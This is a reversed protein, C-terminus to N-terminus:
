WAIESAQVEPARIWDLVAHFQSKQIAKTSEIQFQAKLFARLDAESRAHTKLAAFLQKRAAQDIAGDGYPVAAVTAHRLEAAEAADDERDTRPQYTVAATRRAATPPQYRDQNPSRADIGLEGVLPPSDIHRWQSDEHGHRDLVKVFVGQQLRYRFQWRRNWFQTIGVGLDKACRMVACSKATELAKGWSHRKNSEVYKAEGFASAVPIRNVLLTWHQVVIEGKQQPPEDMLGWNGPGFVRNLRTRIHAHSTYAEGSPLLEIEEDTFPAMLADHQAPTFHSGSMGLAALGMTPPLTAVSPGIVPTGPQQRRM